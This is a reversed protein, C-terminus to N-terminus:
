LEDDYEYEDYNFLDYYSSNIQLIMKRNNYETLIDTTDYYQFRIYMMQNKDIFDYYGNTDDTLAWDIKIEDFTEKLVSINNTTYAEYIKFKNNKIYSCAQKFWRKTRM